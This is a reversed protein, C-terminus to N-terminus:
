QSRLATMRTQMGQKAATVTTVAQPVDTTRASPTVAPGEQPFQFQHAVSVAILVLLVVAMITALLASLFWKRSKCSIGPEEAEEIFFPEMTVM